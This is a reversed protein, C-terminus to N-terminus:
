TSNEILRMQWSLWLCKPWPISWNSSITICNSKASLSQEKLSSESFRILVLSEASPALQRNLFAYHINFTLSIFLFRACLSAYTTLCRATVWFYYIDPQVPEMLGKHIHNLMRWSTALCYTFAVTLFEKDNTVGTSMFHVATLIGNSVRASSNASEM